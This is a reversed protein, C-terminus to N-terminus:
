NVQSASIALLVRSIRLETSKPPPSRSTCAPSESSLQSPLRLHLLHPKGWLEARSLLVAGLSERGGADRAPGCERDVHREDGLAAVLATTVGRASRARPVQSSPALATTLVQMRRASAQRSFGVITSVCRFEPQSHLSDMM